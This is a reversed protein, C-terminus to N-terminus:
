PTPLDPHVFHGADLWLQAVEFPVPDVRLVVAWAETRQRRAFRGGAARQASTAVAGFAAPGASGGADPRMHRGSHVLM